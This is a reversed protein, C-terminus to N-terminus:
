AWFDIVDDIEDVVDFLEFRRNVVGSSVCLILFFDATVQENAENAEGIREAVDADIDDFHECREIAVSSRVDFCAFIADISAVRLNVDFRASIAANLQGNAEGGVEGAVDRLWINEASIAERGTEDLPESRGIAVCLIVGFDISFSGAM